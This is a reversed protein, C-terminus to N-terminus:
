AEHRPFLPSVSHCDGVLRRPLRHSAGSQRTCGRGCLCPSGCAIASCPRPSLSYPDRPLLQPRAARPPLEPARCDTPQSSRRRRPPPPSPVSQSVSQCPRLHARTECTTLVLFPSRPNIEGKSSSFTTLSRHVSHEFRQYSANSGLM